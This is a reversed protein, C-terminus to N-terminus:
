KVIVTMKMGPHVTCYLKFTGATNFPGLKGSGFGDVQMNNVKPAGPEIAPKPTSDDWTGNAIVHPPADDNILTIIEGKKITISSQTFSTSDMHVPNPGTATNGGMACASIFVTFLSFLIFAGFLKKM